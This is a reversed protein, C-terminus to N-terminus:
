QSSPYNLYVSFEGFRKPEWQPARPNQKAAKETGQAGRLLGKSDKVVAKSCGNYLRPCDKQGGGAGGSQGGLPDWLWKNINQSRCKAFFYTQM